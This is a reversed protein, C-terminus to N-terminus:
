QSPLPPLGGTWYAPTVLVTIKRTTRTVTAYGAWSRTNGVILDAPTLGDWQCRERVRSVRRCEITPNQVEWASDLYRVLAARAQADTLYPVTVAGASAPLAAGAALWGAVMTIAILRRM